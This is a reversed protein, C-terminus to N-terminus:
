GLVQARCPSKANIPGLNRRLVPMDVFDTLRARLVRMWSLLAYPCETLPWPL